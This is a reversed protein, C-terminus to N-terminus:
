PLNRVKKFHLIATGGNDGCFLDTFYAYVSNADTGIVTVDFTIRKGLRITYFWGNPRDNSTNYFSVKNVKCGDYYDRLADCYRAENSKLTVVYRGREISHSAFGQIPTGWIEFCNTLSNVELDFEYGYAANLSFNFIITLAILLQRKM